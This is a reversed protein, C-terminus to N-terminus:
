SRGRLILNDQFQKFQRGLGAENLDLLCEIPDAVPLGDSTTRFLPTTRRLYHVALRAPGHVDSTPRLGPDLKAIPLPDVRNGPAHVCIDLRPSGVLDLGPFHWSAGFTGGVAVDSRNWDRLRGLLSGPSRPQGSIDIYYESARSDRSTALLRNWTEQNPAKIGYRKDDTQLLTPGLRSLASKITRFSAGIDDALRSATVPEQNWAWRVLLYKEVETQLDPRRLDTAGDPGTEQLLRAREDDALQDLLDSFAEQETTLLQMRDAIDPLLINVFQDFEERLRNESIRSDALILLGKRDRDGALHTALQMLADRVTRVATAKRIIGVDWEGARFDISFM